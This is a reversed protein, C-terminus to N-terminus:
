GIDVVTRLPYSEDTYGHIITNILFKERNYFLIDM